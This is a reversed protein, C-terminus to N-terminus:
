AVRKLYRQITRRSCGLETAIENIVWGSNWLEHARAARDGLDPNEEAGRVFAVEVGMRRVLTSREGPGLGGYWGVRNDPDEARLALAVCARSAPCGDCRSLATESPCGVEPHYEDALCGSCAAKSLLDSPIQEIHKKIEQDHLLFDDVTPM